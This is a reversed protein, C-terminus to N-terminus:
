NKVFLRAGKSEGNPERIDLLYLGVPLSEIEIAENRTGMLFGRQQQQGTLHYISYSYDVSEELGIVSIQNRAPIPYLKFAAKQELELGTANPQFQNNFLWYYADAFERGWFWESTDGDSIVISLLENAAFGNEILLLEMNLMEESVTGGELGGSMMYIRLNQEFGREEVLDFIEPSFGLSPSFIMLKEFVEPYEIGAYLSILGGMESGGIGTSERGSRTRYNQDIFPKLTNIIFQVYEDGQGGADMEDNEWPSYENNREIGGNDIGVIICGEGEGFQSMSEDILWEGGASATADDFLNQGDQMYLVPYNNGTFDYLPPLYIWIRRSRDLQPIYFEESIISVSTSATSEIVTNEWGLISLEFSSFSGDIELTRHAISDGEATGEPTDDWMFKYGYSGIALDLEIVYEGNLKELQYSPDSAAWNNFSGAVFIAADEPTDSPWEVVKLTVQGSLVLPFLLYTLLLIRKM